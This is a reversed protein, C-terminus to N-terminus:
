SWRKELEDWDEKDKLIRKVYLDNWDKYVDTFPYRSDALRKQTWTLHVVAYKYVDNDLEFLADDNDQRRAVSKLIKSALIHGIPM